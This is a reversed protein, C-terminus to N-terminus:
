WISSSNSDSSTHCLSILRSLTCQVLNFSDSNKLGLCTHILAVSWPFGGEMCEGIMFCTHQSDITSILLVYVGGGM